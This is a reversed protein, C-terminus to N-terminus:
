MTEETVMEIGEPLGDTTLPREVEVLSDEEPTLISTGGPGTDKEVMCAIQREAM